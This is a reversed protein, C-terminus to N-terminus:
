AISETLLPERFRASEYSRQLQSYNENSRAGGSSAKSDMMVLTTTTPPTATDSEEDLDQYETTNVTDDSSSPGCIMSKVACYLHLLVIGIFQVFTIGASVTIIIRIAEQSGGDLRVYLVSVGVVALNFLFSTEFLSRYKLVKEPFFRANAPQNDNYLRGTYSFGSLLFVVVVVLALLSSNPNSAYTFTFIVLLIFRALLLLGVWHQNPATLPGVYAELFPVLKNVWKFCWRDSFRRLPSIFLFVLTYFLWLPIVILLVFLLLFIHPYRGYVLNGDLAWVVRTQSKVLDGSENYVYLTAPFLVAIITRLLKAYSLLFLTALVHVSNKGFLETMRESYHALLIIVGVICWVYLPFLFQLWTKWFATLGEVFCTEIGFDLNIWAIFTYSLQTENVM